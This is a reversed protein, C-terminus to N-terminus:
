TVVRPGAEAGPRDAPAKRHRGEPDRDRISGEAPGQLRGAESRLLQAPGARDGDGGGQTGGGGGGGRRAQRTAHRLYAGPGGRPTVLAGRGGGAPLVEGRRPQDDGQVSRHAPPLGGRRAGGPRRDPVLWGPLVE